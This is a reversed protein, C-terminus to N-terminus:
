RPRIWGRAGRLLGADGDKALTGAIMLVRLVMGISRDAKTTAPPRPRVAQLLFLLPPLLFFDALLAVAVTLGTLRALDGNVAFGSQALVAFGALLSLSTVMLAMGVHAFAHTM